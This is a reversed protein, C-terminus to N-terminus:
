YRRGLPISYGGMFYFARNRIEFPDTSDNLNTLGHTYRGELLLAGPGMAFALGGGVALGFDTKKRESSDEDLDCDASVGGSSASCDIEFAFSPGAVVYPAFSSGMMLPLHLLVPIEVYELSVKMDAADVEAGKSVSLLEPQIGIRGMDFRIFGGGVFGTKSDYDPGDSVDFKTSAMGLKFGITQASAPVSLVLAVACAGAGMLTNRVVAPTFRM